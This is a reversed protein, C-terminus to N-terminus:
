RHNFYARLFLLKTNFGVIRTIRGTVNNDFKILANDIFPDDDIQKLNKLCIAM